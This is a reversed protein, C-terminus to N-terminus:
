SVYESLEVNLLFPTKRKMIILPKESQFVIHITSGTPKKMILNLLNINIPHDGDAAQRHHNKAQKRGSVSDFVM